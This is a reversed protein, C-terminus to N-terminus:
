DQVPLVVGSNLLYENIHECKSYVVLTTLKTEAGSYQSMSVANYSRVYTKLM